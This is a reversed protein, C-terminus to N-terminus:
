FYTEYINWFFDKETPLHYASYYYYTLQFFIFIYLGTNVLSEDGCSVAM